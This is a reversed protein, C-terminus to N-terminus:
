PEHNRLNQSKGDRRPRILLLCPVGKVLLYRLYRLWVFWDGTVLLSGGVALHGRALDLTWSVKM